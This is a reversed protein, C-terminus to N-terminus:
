PVQELKAGGKRLYVACPGCIPFSEGEKGSGNVSYRVVLENSCVNTKAECSLKSGKGTKKASPDKRTKSPRPM